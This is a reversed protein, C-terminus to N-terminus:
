RWCITTSIEWYDWVYSKEKALCLPLTCPSFNMSMSMSMTTIREVTTFLLKSDSHFSIVGCYNPSELTLCAKLRKLNLNNRKSRPLQFKFCIANIICAPHLCNCCPASYAEESHLGWHVFVPRSCYEKLIEKLLGVTLISLIKTCKLQTSDWFVQDRMLPYEITLQWSTYQFKEFQAPPQITSKEPPLHRQLWYTFNQIRIRDREVEKQQQQALVGTASNWFLKTYHM